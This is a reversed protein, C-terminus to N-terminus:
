SNKELATMARALRERVSAAAPLLADNGSLRLQVMPDLAAVRTMGNGADRVIVNCPLLLGLDPELKLAEFADNPSCAGLLVYQPSQAGIKKLFTAQFDAEMLVGFGEAALAARTAEVTAAFPKQLQIAIEYPTQTLM